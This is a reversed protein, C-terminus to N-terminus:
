TTQLFLTVCAKCNNGTIAISLLELGDCQPLAKYTIANSVYFLIGGGHRNRDSRVVQYGEIDLDDSPIDPSLWTEVICIISPQHLKTLLQLESIKPLVSRANFYLISLTDSKPDQPLTYQSDHVSPNMTTSGSISPTNHASNPKSFSLPVSSSTYTPLYTYTYTLRISLWSGTM